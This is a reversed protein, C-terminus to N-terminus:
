YDLLFHRSDSVKGTESRMFCYLHTYGQWAAPLILEAYEDRRRIVGAEDFIKIAFRDKGQMLALIMCDGADNGPYSTVNKWTLTWTNEGGRRISLEDPLYIGTGVTLCVKDADGILGDPTFAPLNKSVFLNYGSWGSPKEADNWYKALEASKLAKYLIAISAIRRQQAIVEKGTLKRSEPLTRVCTEGMRDYVTCGGLKGQLRGMLNIANHKIIAM